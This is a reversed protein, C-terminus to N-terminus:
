VELFKKDLSSPVLDKLSEHFGDGIGIGVRMGGHGRGEGREGMGERQGSLVRRRMPRLEQWQYMKM